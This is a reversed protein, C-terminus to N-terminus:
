TPYLCSSEWCGSFRRGPVSFGSEDAANGGRTLSRVAKSHRQVRGRQGQRDAQPGRRRNPHSSQRVGAPLQAPENEGWSRPKRGEDELGSTQPLELAWSVQAPFGEPPPARPELNPAPARSGGVPGVGCKVRVSSRAWFWANSSSGCKWGDIWSGCM